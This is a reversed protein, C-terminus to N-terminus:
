RRFLSTPSVMRVVIDTVKGDRAFEVSLNVDTAFHGIYRVVTREGQGIEELFSLQTLPGLATVRSLHEAHKADFFEPAFAVSTPPPTPLSPIAVLLRATRASNPDMRGGNDPLLSRKLVLEGIAEGLWPRQDVLGRNTLLVVTLDDDLFRTLQASCDDWGGSHKEIRKGDVTRLFVGLGYGDSCDPWAIEGSKLRAMTLMEARSKASLLKNQKLAESWRNLDDPTSVIGGAGGGIPEYLAQANAYGQGDWRYGRVRNPMVSETNASTQTMGLPTWIRAAMQDWLSQRAVKELIKGLLYYASNNYRWCTSPAEQSGSKQLDLLLDPWKSTTPNLDFIRDSLGSTHTLLERIRVNAWGGPASPYFRTLRDDLSLKGDQVLLLTLVATFQKTISAIEFRSDRKVPVSQELDAMGYVAVKVPRGGRYIGLSVGPVHETQMFNRIWDDIADARVTVALFIAALCGLFRM